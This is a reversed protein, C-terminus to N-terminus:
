RLRADRLFQAISQAALRNGALNWHTDLPKYLRVPGANRFTALLDLAPIGDAALSAALLRNPQDFDLAAGSSWVQGIDRGLAPDVQAEDPILVVALKAGARTAIDRISRLDAAVRQVAAALRASGPEYVWARDVEIEMFRDRSFGPREDVYVGATPTTVQPVPARERSLRWLGSALMAVYSYEFPRRAREEFDNGIFVSVLVVDPGFALGEHVLVDRYDAPGTASIGMNIVEVPGEAALESELLTLYNASYPVVGVAFSDGLAVIRRAVGAPRALAHDVDNFGRANLQSDFLPAGPVGRFRDYSDSYFLFHPRVANFIRLAVELSILTIAVVAAVRLVARKRRLAARSAAVLGFILLGAVGVAEPSLWVHQPTVLSYALAATPVIILCVALLESTFYLVIALAGLVVFIRLIYAIPANRRMLSVTDDSVVFVRPFDPAIGYYNQIRAELDLTANGADAVRAGLVNEGTRSVNALPIKRLSKAFARDVNIRAAEQGNLEVVVASGATLSTSDASRVVLGYDVYLPQAAPLSFTATPRQADLRVRAEFPEFSWTMTAIVPLALLVARGLLRFSSM